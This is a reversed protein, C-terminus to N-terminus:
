ASITYTNTNKGLITATKFGQTDAWQKIKICDKAFPLHIALPEAPKSLLLYQPSPAYKQERKFSPTTTSM